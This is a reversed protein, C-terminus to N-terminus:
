LHQLLHDRLYGGLLWIQASSVLACDFYGVGLAQLEMLELFILTSKVSTALEEKVLIQCLGSSYYMLM